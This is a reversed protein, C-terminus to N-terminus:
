RSFEHFVRLRPAKRVKPLIYLRSKGSGVHTTPKCPLLTEPTESPWSKMDFTVFSTPTASEPMRGSTFDCIEQNSKPPLENSRMRLTESMSSERVRGLKGFPVGAAVRFELGQCGDDVDDDDDDDGGVVVDVGSLDTFSECM